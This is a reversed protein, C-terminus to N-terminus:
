INGLCRLGEDPCTSTPWTRCSGPCTGGKQVHAPQETWTSVDEGWLTASVVKGSMDMLYINRKSVERNNSKVTIKTAEEYSKCVGIIDVLSDKPKSELDGIGTFDFKVTPLHRDDECPIVSTENNFTM